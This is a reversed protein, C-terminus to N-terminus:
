SVPPPALHSLAIGCAVTVNLSDVVPDIPISVRVDAQALAADTLGPGEAGLLIALRPGSRQIGATATKMLAAAYAALAMSPPQPTLAVVTFGDKRLGDLGAPWDDVRAFPVSLVTAMSTRIAKRYLPDGCGPALLVGDVGFAAATRFIGGVNDPNGVAELVVLMRADRSVDAPTRDAPRVALALCGRHLNLGALRAFESTPCVYTSVDPVAAVVPAMAAFAADSLLIADITIASARWAILREVVLRGEAIFRGSRALASPDAVLHFPAVRPDELSTIPVIAM